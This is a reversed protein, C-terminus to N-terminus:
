LLEAEAADTADGEGTAGPIVAEEAGLAAVLAAGAAEVEDSTDAVGDEDIKGAIMDDFEANGTDEDSVATALGIGAAIVDPPPDAFEV